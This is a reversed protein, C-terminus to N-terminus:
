GGGGGKICKDNNTLFLRRIHMGALGWPMVVIVQERREGCAFSVQTSYDCEEEEEEEEKEEDDDDDDENDDDDDDDNDDEDDDDDGKRTENHM